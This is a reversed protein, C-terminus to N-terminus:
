ADEANASPNKVVLAVLSVGVEMMSAEAERFEMVHLTAGVPLSCQAATRWSKGEKRAELSVAKGM